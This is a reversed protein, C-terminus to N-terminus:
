CSSNFWSLCTKLFGSQCYLIYVVTVFCPRVSWHKQSTKEQASRNERCIYAARIWVPYLLLFVYFWISRCFGTPSKMSWNSSFNGFSHVWYQFFYLEIGILNPVFSIKLLTFSNPNLQRQRLSFLSFRRANRNLFIKFRALRSEGLFLLLPLNNLNGMGRHRNPASFGVTLPFGICLSLRSPFCRKRSFIYIVERNKFPHGLEAYIWTSWDLGNGEV